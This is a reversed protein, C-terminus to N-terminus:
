GPRAHGARRLPEAPNARHGRARRGARRDAREAARPGRAAHLVSQARVRLRHETKHDWASKKSRHRETATPSTPRAAAVPVAPLGVEPAPRGRLDSLDEDSFRLHNAALNEELHDLSGTGPIALVSSSTALLSALQVQMATVGLRAAVKGLQVADLPSVGGGLPFYPVYAIGWEECEALLGMDGTYRNQVAAVPAIERAGALQVADVYSVGLHQILGEARLEALVAFREAISEGGPGTM